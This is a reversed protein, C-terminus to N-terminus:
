PYSEFVAVNAAANDLLQARLFRELPNVLDYIGM